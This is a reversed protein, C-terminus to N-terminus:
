PPLSVFLHSIKWIYKLFDSRSYRPASSLSLEFRAFHLIFRTINEKKLIYDNKSSHRFIRFILYKRMVTKIQILFVM